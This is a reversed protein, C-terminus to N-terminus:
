TFKVLSIDKSCDHIPKLFESAGSKRQYIYVMYIHTYALAGPKQGVMEEM